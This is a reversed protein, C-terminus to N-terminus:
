ARRVLARVAVAVGALCWAALVVLDRTAAEYADAALGARLLDASPRMPLVDHVARLWEPLRDAPFTIPSFLLVVFVLVQSVLQAVVPRATVAVAYGVATATVTVLVAAALLLPWDPSLAVGFRLRAVAVSVVVGPLAVVLWVTLDALLLLPRAVPLCRLYTYTGDQRARAVAQPVMVLGVMLLLVTPAGTSLFLM